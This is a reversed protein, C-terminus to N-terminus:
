SCSEREEMAEKMLTAYGCIDVANDMYAPDGNLMRAIKTAILELAERQALTTRDWGPASRMVSKLSQAIHAGNTFAGYRAGREAIVHQMAVPVGPAPPPPLPVPAGGWGQRESM